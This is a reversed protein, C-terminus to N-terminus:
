KFYALSLETVSPICEVSKCLYAGNRIATYFELWPSERHDKKIVSKMLEQDPEPIPDGTVDEMWARVKYETDLDYNAELQMDCSLLLVDIPM